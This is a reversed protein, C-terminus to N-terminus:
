DFSSFYYFVFSCPSMAQLMIFYIFYQRYCGKLYEKDKGRTNPVIKESYSNKMQINTCFADGLHKM